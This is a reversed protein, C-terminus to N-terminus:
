GAIKIHAVKAGKPLVQWYPLADAKTVAKHYHNFFVAIHGHEMDSKLADLDNAKALMYTGFSHRLADQKDHGDIGAM